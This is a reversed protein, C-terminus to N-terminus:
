KALCKYTGRSNSRIEIMQTSMKRCLCKTFYKANYNLHIFQFALDKADYYMTGRNAYIIYKCFCHKTILYLLYCTVKVLGQKMLAHMSYASDCKPQQYLMHLHFAFSIKQRCGGIVKYLMSKRITEFDVTTMLYWYCFLFRHHFM